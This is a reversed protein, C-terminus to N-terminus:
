FESWVHWWMGVNKKAILWLQLKLCPRVPWGDSMPQENLELLSEGRQPTTPTRRVVQRPSWLKHCSAQIRHPNTANLQGLISLYPLIHCTLVHKQVSQISKPTKCKSDTEFFTLLQKTWTGQMNWFIGPQFTEAPYCSTLTAIHQPCLVVLIAVVLRSEQTCFLNTEPAPLTSPFCSAQCSTPRWTCPILHQTVHRYVLLGTPKLVQGGANTASQLRGWALSHSATRRSTQLTWGHQVGAHLSSWRQRPVYQSRPAASRRQQVSRVTRSSRLSWQHKRTFGIANSSSQQYLVASRKYRTQGRRRVRDCASGEGGSVLLTPAHLPMVSNVIFQFPYEPFCEPWMRLQSHTRGLQLHVSLACRETCQLVSKYM